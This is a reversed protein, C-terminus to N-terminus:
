GMVKETNELFKLVVETCSAHPRIQSGSFFCVASVNEYKM